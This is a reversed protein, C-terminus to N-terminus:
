AQCDVPQGPPTVTNLIPATDAGSWMADFCFGGVASKLYAVSGDGTVLKLIGVWIFPGQQYVSEQAARALQTLVTQNAGGLMAEVYAVTASSEWGSFENPCYTAGFCTAFVSWNDVPTNQVQGYSPIGNFAINAVETPNSVIDVSNYFNMYTAYSYVNLNLTIDLNASLQAQIFDAINTLLTFGSVLSLTITPFPKSASFGAEALLQTALTTNFSYQPYNGPDYAGFTSFGPTSPGVYPSVDGQPFVTQDLLTYNIAHDIALRVDTINTPYENVNFALFSVINAFPPFEFTGYTSPSHTILNWDASEISAIQATGESIDTYRSLDDAKYYIIIQKYHGPDLLPNAAVQSANLNAGWYYPNPTFTVYANQVYTTIAYPGTGPIAHNSYYGFATSGYVPFGGAASLSDLIYQADFIEGPLGELVGLLFQFPKDMHFVLTYQGIVYIPLSTNQMYTLAKASPNSLGSQAFMQITAPGFPAAYSANFVGPYAYAFAWSVNDFLYFSSYFQFWAQYANFPDGNSFKVGQRLNFTYTKGDSSVTWSTALGPLYSYTGNQYEGNINSDVLPQYVDSEGWNPYTLGPFLVNLNYSPWFADDIVLTTPAASSSSTTSTTSSTTSSSSSSTTSSTSSSTTTTTTPPPLTAYYAVAVGAVIIIVIVVAAMAM